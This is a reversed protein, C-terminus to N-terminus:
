KGISQVLHVASARVTARDVCFSAYDCIKRRMNRAM